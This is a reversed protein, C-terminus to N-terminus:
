VKFYKMVFRSAAECVDQNTHSKLKEIIVRGNCKKLKALCSNKGRTKQHRAELIQYIDNLTNIIETMMKTSRDGALNDVLTKVLNQEILIQVCELSQGLCANM